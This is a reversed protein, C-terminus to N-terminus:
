SLQHHLLGAHDGDSADDADNAYPAVARRLRAAIDARLAPPSIVEVAEARELLLNTLAVSPTVTATLVFGGAEEALAQDDALRLERLPHRFGSAERVRLVIAVPAESFFEFTREQRIYADLSFGADRQLVTDSAGAAHIRDMRLLHRKTGGESRPRDAVLYLLPGKEVLALPLVTFQRPAADGIRGNQYTVSVCQDRYLADLLVDLVERRVPPASLGYGADLRTTKGLWARAAELRTAAASEQLVRMAGDFYDDLGSIVSAPVHTNALQRLKLLAVALDVPPRLADKNVPAGSTARWERNADEGRRQALGERELRDFSRTVKKPYADPERAIVERILDGSRQWKGDHVRLIKLALFDFDALPVAYEQFHSRRIYHPAEPSTWGV